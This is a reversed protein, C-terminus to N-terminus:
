SAFHNLQAHLRNRVMRDISERPSVLRVLGLFDRVRSIDVQMMRKDEPNYPGRQGTKKIIVEPRIRGDSHTAVCEKVINALDLVTIAEPYYVNVISDLSNGTKRLGGGLIKLAYSEFARCVDAVDVYLMCRYMSHEYPTLPEGRLGKEIFINAATQRPMNEGLTTGIRIIGYTKDSSDTEYIRVIAEQAIKSLVYLRAREEVYDPRFGFRENITASTTTEGITHWSGTVVLGKTLPNEKVAECVNQTGIVNVEYGLRKDENIRPIQVIATHIVLDANGLARRVEAFDRIDCNVFEVRKIAEQTSARNDL